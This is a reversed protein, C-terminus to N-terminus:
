HFGLGEHMLELYCGKMRFDDKSIKGMRYNEWDWGGAVATAIRQALYSVHHAVGQASAAPRFM